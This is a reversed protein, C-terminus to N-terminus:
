KTVKRNGIYKSEDYLQQVLDKAFPQILIPTLPMKLVKGARQM